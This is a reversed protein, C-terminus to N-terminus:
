HIELLNVVERAVWEPSIDVMCKQYIKQSCKGRGDKSCPRCDLDVQLTKIHEHTAFGFATPGILSLGKVGELDAVHILGTDASVLVECQTVLWCSEMFSLKGAFNHVNDGLAALDQCFHDEPGGLLVLSFDGALLKILKEWHQYPWRKMPWAASPALCIFKKSVGLESLNKQLKIKQDSPLYSMKQRLNVPYDITLNLASSLPKLYSIMGRFPWEFKNIRFKFLLFRKYRDKPRRILKPAQRNLFRIMFCVIHSRINNHADYILDYSTKRFQVSWKILGFLGQKKDFAYVRSIYESSAVLGQFEKKTILDISSNEVKEHLFRTTGLMQIIDGFSSFRIILIKKM